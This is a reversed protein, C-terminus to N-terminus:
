YIEVMSEAIEEATPIASLGPRTVSIAALLTAFRGAEWPDRTTFLRVFFPLPLFIAPVQLM